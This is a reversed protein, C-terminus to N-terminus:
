TGSVADPSFVTRASGFLADGALGRREISGKRVIRSSLPLRILRSDKTRGQSRAPTHKRARSVKYETKFMLLM